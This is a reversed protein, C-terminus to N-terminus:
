TSKCRFIHWNNRNDTSSLPTALRCEVTVGMHCSDGALCVGTVQWPSFYHGPPLLLYLFLLYPKLFRPCLPSSHFARSLGLFFFWRWVCNRWLPCHVLASLNLPLFCPCSMLQPLPLPLPFFSPHPLPPLTRPTWLGRVSLKTSHNIASHAVNSGPCMPVPGTPPSGGHSSPNDRGCNVGGVWWWWGIMVVEDGGEWCPWTTCCLLKKTTEVRGKFFSFFFQRQGAHNHQKLAAISLPTPLCCPLPTCLGVCPMYVLARAWAHRMGSM